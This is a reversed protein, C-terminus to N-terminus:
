GAALSRCLAITESFLELILNSKDVNTPLITPKTIEFANFHPLLEKIHIISMLSSLIEKAADAVDQQNNRNLWKHKSCLLFAIKIWSEINSKLTAQAIAIQRAALRRLSAVQWHKNTGIRAHLSTHLRQNTPTVACM